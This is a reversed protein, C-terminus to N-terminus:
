RRWRRQIRDLLGKGRGGPTYIVTANAIYIVAVTLNRIDGGHWRRIDGRGGPTYIVTANAIYIVAVTLNRIDGGHWRRIDGCAGSAYIVAGM